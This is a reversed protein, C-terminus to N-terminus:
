PFLALSLNDELGDGPPAPYFLRSLFGGTKYFSRGIV